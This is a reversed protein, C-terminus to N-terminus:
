DHSQEYEFQARANESAQRKDRKRAAALALRHTGESKIAPLSLLRELDKSSCAPCRVDTGSRVLAEFQRTCARCRYEYIPM